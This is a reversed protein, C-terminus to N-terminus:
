VFLAIGKWRRKRVAATDPPGRKWKRSEPPDHAWNFVLFGSLLWVPVFSILPFALWIRLDPDVGTISTHILVYPYGGLTLLVVLLSAWRRRQVLSVVGALLLVASGILLLGTMRYM